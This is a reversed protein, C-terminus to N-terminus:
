PQVEQHGSPNTKSINKFVEVLTPALRNCRSFGNIRVKPGTGISEPQDGAVALPQPVSLFSRDNQVDGRGVILSVPETQRAQCGKKYQEAGTILHTNVLQLLLLRLEAVRYLGDRRHRPDDSGVPGILKPISAPDFIGAQRLQSLRLSGPC